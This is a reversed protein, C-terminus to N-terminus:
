IADALERLSRAADPCAARQAADRYARALRRRDAEGFADRFVRWRALVWCAPYLLTRM